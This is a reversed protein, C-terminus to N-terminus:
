GLHDVFTPGRVPPAVVRRYADLTAHGSELAHAASRRALEAERLAHMAEADSALIAAVLHAAARHLSVLDDFSGLRRAAQQHATLTERVPKLQQELEVLSSTAQSREDSIRQLSALDQHRTAERQRASLRELRRLVVLEAEIGAVYLATAQALEDDSM